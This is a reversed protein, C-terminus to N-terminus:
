FRQTHFREFFDFARLDEVEALEFGGFAAGKVGVFDSDLASRHICFASRLDTRVDPAIECHGGVEGLGKKTRCEANM